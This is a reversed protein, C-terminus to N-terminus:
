NLDINDIATQLKDEVKQALESLETSETIGMAVTPLIASIFTNKDKEYVIVNCPLLLGIEIDTELAQHAFMPNCAGLIIYNTFDIDLKKRLTAKVDIETLVGFGQEQLTEKVKAIAQNFELESKKTYSYNM